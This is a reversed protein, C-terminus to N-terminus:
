QIKAADKIPAKELRGCQRKLDEEDIFPSLKRLASNEPLICKIDSKLSKFEEHFSDAQALRYLFCQSWHLEESTLTFSKTTSSRTGRVKDKCREVFRKVYAMCRELREWKSFRAPDILPHREIHVGVYEPQLM